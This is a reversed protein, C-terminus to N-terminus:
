LSRPAPHHTASNIRYNNFTGATSALDRVALLAFSACLPSHPLCRAVGATSSTYASGSPGSYDRNSSGVRWVNARSLVSTRKCSITSAALAHPCAVHKGVRVGCVGPETQAAIEAAVVDVGLNSKVIRPKDSVIPVIQLELTTLRVTGLTAFAAACAHLTVNFTLAFM